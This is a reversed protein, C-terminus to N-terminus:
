ELDDLYDCFWLYQFEENRFLAKSPLTNIIFSPYFTKYYTCITLNKKQFPEKELLKNYTITSFKNRVKLWNKETSKYTRGYKM